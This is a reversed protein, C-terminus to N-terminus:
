SHVATHRPKAPCDNHLRATASLLDDLYPPPPIGSGRRPVSTWCDTGAVPVNQLCDMPVKVPDTARYSFDDVSIPYGAPRDFAWARRAPFASIVRETRGATWVRAACILLATARGIRSPKRFTASTSVGPIIRAIVEQRSVASTNGPVTDAGSRRAIREMTYVSGSQKGRAAGTLGARGNGPITNLRERFVRTQKQKM